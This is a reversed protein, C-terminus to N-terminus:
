YMKIVEQLKSDMVYLKTGQRNFVKWIDGKHVDADGSIYNKGNFFVHKNKTDGCPHDKVRRYGLDEAIKKAQQNNLSEYEDRAEDRKRKKEDEPDQPMMGGGYFQSRLEICHEKKNKKHWQYGLYGGLAGIGGTIGVLELGGGFLVSIGIIVPVVNHACISEIKKYGSFTKVLTKACCDEAFFQNIHLFIVLLSFCKLFGLKM